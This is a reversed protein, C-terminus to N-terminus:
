TRANQAEYEDFMTMLLENLKMDKNLAFQKFRKRFEPPVRFNLPETNKSEAVEHKPASARTPTKTPTAAGKTSVLSALDPTNRKSM